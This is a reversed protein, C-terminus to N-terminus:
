KKHKRFGKKVDFSGHCKTCLRIWDSLKKSYKHDINAWEYKKATKTGCIKCVMPTGLRVEIRSHLARYKVNKGKWLYSKKGAIRGKVPESRTKWCCNKKCYNGTTEILGIRTDNEGYQRCHDEYSQNMERYFDLFTKWEVKIGKGGYQSYGAYNKNNCRQLMARYIRYIRTHYKGHKVGYKHGKKFSGSHIKGVQYLSRCKISCTIRKKVECSYEYFVKGCQKCIFTNM